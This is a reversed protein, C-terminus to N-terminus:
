GKQQRWDRCRQLWNEALQPQSHFHLHPYGIWATDSHFVTSHNAGSTKTALCDSGYDSSTCYHFEHIRIQDGLQGLLGDKLLTLTQYGFHQLRTTMEAQSSVVGCMPHGHGDLDSLSEGLYLFGGCEAVTPLGARVQERIQQRLTHNASLQGAFVEPYGGGFYLGDLDPPLNQDALPSFFCLEAGKARLLDLNDEYYFNFALDRAVGIRCRPHIEPWGAPTQPRPLPSATAALECVAQWDITECAQQGLRSLKEELEPDEAAPVLGLHRNGLQCDAMKPLFGLVPLTCHKEILRKLYQYGAASVQNLLVGAIRQGAKESFTQYGSILACISLGLGSGDVLLVVPADLIDALQATSGSLQDDLGDYYGMVGEVLALDAQSAQMRRMFLQRLTQDDLLWSDLNGSPLGSAALHFMPDIYDPGVKFPQVLCGKMQLARLLAATFTTKGCNSGTGALVLRPFMHKPATGASLHAELDRM